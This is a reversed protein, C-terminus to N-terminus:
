LKNFEEGVAHRLTYSMIYMDGPELDIRTTEGIPEGEHYWQYYIPVGTTGLRLGIVKNRETDGHWGIGCKSADYYYNSEVKLDRTKPHLVSIEDRIARLLPVASFPVIRGKKQAYDPEQEKEDFCLNWRAHKNVVRGYMFAKKDYDLAAQEEFLEHHTKSHSSLLADIGKQIVLVHGKATKSHGSDLTYLMTDAGRQNMATEIAELDELQFGDGAAAKQGIMQMGAHNEACEGFTLTIVQKTIAM